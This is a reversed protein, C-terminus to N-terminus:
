IRTLLSKTMITCIRVRSITSLLLPQLRVPFSPQFYVEFPLLLGAAQRCIFLFVNTGKAHIRLYCFSLMWNLPALYFYWCHMTTLGSMYLVQLGTDTAQLQCYSVLRNWWLSTPWVARGQCPHSSCTLLMAWSQLPIQASKQEKWVYSLSLHTM